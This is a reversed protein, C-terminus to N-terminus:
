KLPPLLAWFAECDAASVAEMYHSNIMAVSNGAELALAPADRTQAARYSCYSHRLVNRPWGGILRGLRGTETRSPDCTAIPGSKPADIYELWAELTPLIPMIRRKRRKSVAAPVDIVGDAGRVDEWRLSPKVAEQRSVIEQARLGSFLNLILWGTLEPAVAKLITKAQDPTLINIRHQAPLKYAPLRDAATSHFIEHANGFKWLASVRARYTKRSKPNDGASEIYAQIEDPEIEAASTSGFHDAMKALWNLDGRLTRSEVGGLEALKHAKWRAVLVAVTIGVMRARHVRMRELDASTPDLALFQRILELQPATLADLDLKGNHIARAQAKAADIAAVKDKRTGYRWTGTSDKWSWRWGEAHEWFPLSVSGVRIRTIPKASM